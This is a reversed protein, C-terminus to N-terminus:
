KASSVAKEFSMGRYIRMKVTQYDLGLTSCWETLTKREGNLEYYVNRRSNNNQETRTAWRCNEKSYNEDNKERDISHNSSPRSGMDRYFTEFSEKWEDSMTIGRGGYDKYQPHKKNYCRSKIQCWANYEPSSRLGHTIKSANAEITRERQLCGCSRTNGSRLNGTPVFVISGCDCVCEWMVKGNDITKLRVTLKEFRSGILDLTRSM